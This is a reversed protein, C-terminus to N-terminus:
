KFMNGIRVLLNRDKESGEVKITAQDFDIVKFQNDKVLINGTNIDNHAINKEKLTNAIANIQEETISNEHVPTFGELYEMEIWIRGDNRKGVSHVKPAIESVSNQINAGQIVNRLMRIDSDAAFIAKYIRDNALYIDAWEGQNVKDSEKVQPASLGNTLLMKFTHYNTQKNYGNYSCDKKTDLTSPYNM